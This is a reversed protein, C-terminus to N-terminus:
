IKRIKKLTEYASQIEQTKQKALEIMEPPLGKASLKDPHHEIMLKKYAKKIENNSASSDIGLIRLADAEKSKSNYTNDSFSSNNYQYNQSQFRIAAEQMKLWQDLIKQSFGLLEALKFLLSREENHLTGDAFAAQIQIEMFFKLLNLRGQCLQKVKLVSERFAFGNMTGEKFAKQAKLTSANDLAMQKMIYSAVRIENSTVRGKAKAVHGMISFSLQFFQEQREKNVQSNRSFSSFPNKSNNVARDFALGLLFGIFLGFFNLLFFGFIAGLVRGWIQM